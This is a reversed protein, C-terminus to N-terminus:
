VARRNNQIRSSFAVEGLRTLVHDGTPSLLSDSFIGLLDASSIEGVRSDDEYAARLAAKLKEVNKPTARIFFDLAATARVLGHFAMAAAGILAYEVGASEFARLVRIIDDRDM